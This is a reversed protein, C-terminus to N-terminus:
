PNPSFVPARAWARFDDKYKQRLQVIPGIYPKLLHKHITEVGKRILEQTHDFYPQLDAQLERLKKFHPDLQTRLTQVQQPLKEDIKHNIDQAQAVVASRVTAAYPGVRELIPDVYGALASQLAKDLAELNHRGHRRLDYLATIAKEVVLAPVGVFVDFAEVIEDPLEKNLNQLRRSINFFVDELLEWIGPGEERREIIMFKDLLTKIFTDADKRGQQTLKELKSDPEDRLVSAWTGTLVALSLTLVFFKM